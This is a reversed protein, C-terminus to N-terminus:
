PETGCREMAVTPRATVIVEGGCNWCSPENELDRGEVECTRCLWQAVVHFRM